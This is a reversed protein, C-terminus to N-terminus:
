EVTAGRYASLSADLGNSDGLKKLAALCIALFSMGIPNNIFPNTLSEFFVFAASLFLPYALRRDAFKAAKRFRL